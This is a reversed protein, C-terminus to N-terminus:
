WAYTGSANLALNGGDVPLLHGTVMAGADSALFITPGVLDAPVGLRGMPIGDMWRQVIGEVNPSAMYAELAPTVIQCPQIANVRIGHRGWEVALERTLQNLAGKSVSYPLSGRGQASSGAISSMNIISGGRGRAIMRRGAEQACLMAGTVNVALTREWDGLEMDEPRAKLSIGANNVLIDVAWGDADLGAFMAAVGGPDAVDVAVARARRGAGEVLARARALSDLERDAVVVDAGYEALGAAIALGLGQAAGTVLAIRGDLEFLARQPDAM